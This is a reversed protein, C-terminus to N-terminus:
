AGALKRYKPAAHRAGSRAFSVHGLRDWWRSRCPRYTVLRTSKLCTALNLSFVILGARSSALAAGGALATRGCARKGSSHQLSDSNGLERNESEFSKPEVSPAHVAAQDDLTKAIELITAKSTFLDTSAPDVATSGVLDQRRANEMSSTSSNSARRPVAVSAPDINSASGM